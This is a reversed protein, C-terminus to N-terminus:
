WAGSSLPWLVHLNRNIQDDGNAAQACRQPHTETQTDHESPVNPWTRPDDIRCRHGRRPDINRAQLLFPRRQLAAGTIEIDAAPACGVLRALGCVVDSTQSQADRAQGRGGSQRRLRPAIGSRALGRESRLLRCPQHGATAGSRLSDAPRGRGPKVGNRGLASRRTGPLGGTGAGSGLQRALLHLRSARPLLGCLRRACLAPRFLIPNCKCVEVGNQRRNRLMLKSVM